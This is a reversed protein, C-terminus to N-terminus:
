EGRCGESGTPFESLKLVAPSGMLGPDLPEVRLGRWVPSGIDRTGPGHASADDSKTLTWREGGHIAAIEGGLLNGETAADLLNEGATNRVQMVLDLNSYDFIPFSPSKTVSADLSTTADGGGDTQLVGNLWVRARIRPPAGLPMTEARAEFTVEDDEFRGNNWHIVFTERRTEGEAIRFGGLRLVPTDIVGDVYPGVRFTVGAPPEVARGAGSPPWVLPYTLGDIEATVGWSMVDDRYEPVLFNGALEGNAFVAFDFEVVAPPPPLPREHCAAFPLALLTCLLKKM